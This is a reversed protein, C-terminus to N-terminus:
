ELQFPKPQAHNAHETRMTGSVFVSFPDGMTRLKWTPQKTGHCVQCHVKKPLYMCRGGATWWLSNWNMPPFLNQYSGPKHPLWILKHRAEMLCLYVHLNYRFAKERRIYKQISTTAFGWWVVVSAISKPPKPRTPCCGLSRPRRRLVHHWHWCRSQRSSESEM